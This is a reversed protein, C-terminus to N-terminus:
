AEENKVAQLLTVTFCTGKGTQTEFSISGGHQVVIDHAIALGLGTGNAKGHTVFSDFLRDRICEPIGSGDDKVTFRLDEGERLLVVEISGKGKVADAANNVLNCLVRRLKDEDFRAKGAYRVVVSLSLEPSGQLSTKFHSELEQMFKHCYVQRQLISAQGRAFALTDEVMSQILKLQRQAQEYNKRREEACEEEVTLFFLGSLVSMPTKFDHIIGSLAQGIAVLNESKRRERRDELHQLFRGIQGAVLRASVESAQGFGLEERRGGLFVEMAGLIGDGGPIPVCLLGTPHLGLIGAYRSYSTAEPPLNNIRRTKGFRLAYGIVGQNQQVEFHDLRGAETRSTGWCRLADGRPNCLALTVGDADVLKLVKQMAFHLVEDLDQHDGAFTEIELFDEMEEMKSLLQQKTKLFEINKQIV